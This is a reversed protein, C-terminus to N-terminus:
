TPAGKERSYVVLWGGAISFAAFISIALIHVAWNNALPWGLIIDSLFKGIAAAVAAHYLRGGTSTSIVGTILSLILYTLFYGFVGYLHLFVWFYATARFRDDTLLDFKVVFSPLM